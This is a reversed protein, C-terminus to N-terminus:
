SNVIGIIQKTLIPGNFRSDISEPRNDGCIFIENKALTVDVDPGGTDAHGTKSWSSGADPNFGNPYQANYITIIGNHVVVREGPLGIVRKILYQNEKDVAQVDDTIGFVQRIIVVQGRSPTYDHGALHALTVPIKNIVQESGNHYTSEMSHGDVKYLTLVYTNVLIIGTIIVV